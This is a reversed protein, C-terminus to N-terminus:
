YLSKEPWSSLAPKETGPAWTRRLALVEVSLDEDMLHNMAGSWPFCSDRCGWRISDELALHLTKRQEFKDGHGHEDQGVGEKHCGLEGQDRDAVGADLLHQGGANGSGAGDAAQLLVQVVEQGGHLEADGEAGQGQAPDAFGEGGTNEHAPEASQVDILCPGADVGVDDGDGEAEGDDSVEM